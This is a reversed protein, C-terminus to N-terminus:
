ANSNSHTNNSLLSEGLGDVELQSNMKISKSLSARMDKINSISLSERFSGKQPTIGFSERDDDDLDTLRANNEKVRIGMTGSIFEKHLSEREVDVRDRNTAITDLLTAANKRSIAGEKIMSNILEEQKQLIVRAAIKSYLASVHRQDLKSLLDKARTVSLSSDQLVYTEEPGVQGTEEGSNGLFIHLKKAAYQHADIFNILVYM